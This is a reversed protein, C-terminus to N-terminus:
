LCSLFSNSSHLVSIESLVTMHIKKFLDKYETPLDGYVATIVYLIFSMIGM